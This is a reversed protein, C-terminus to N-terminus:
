ILRFSYGFLDCALESLVTAAQRQRRPCVGRLDTRPIVFFASFRILARSMVAASSAKGATKGVKAATKGAGGIVQACSLKLACSLKM